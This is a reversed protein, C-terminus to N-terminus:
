RGEEQRGGAVPRFARRLSEIGKRCENQMALLRLRKGGAKRRGDEQREGVKRRGEEQRGGAM